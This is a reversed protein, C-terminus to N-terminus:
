VAFCQLASGFSQEFLLPRKLPNSLMLILVLNVIYFPSLLLLFNDESSSSAGRILFFLFPIYERDARSSSSEDASSGTNALMQFHVEPSEPKAM